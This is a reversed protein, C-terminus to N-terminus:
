ETCGECRMKSLTRKCVPCTPFGNYLFTGKLGQWGCFCQTIM